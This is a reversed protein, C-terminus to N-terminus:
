ECQELRQFLYEDFAVEEDVLADGDPTDNEQDYVPAIQADWERELQARYM